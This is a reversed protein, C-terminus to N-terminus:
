WSPETWQVNRRVAGAYSSRAAGAQEEVGPELSLSAMSWRQHWDEQAAQALLAESRRQQERQQWQKRRQEHRERIQVVCDANSAAVLSRGQGDAIGGAPRPIYQQLKLVL